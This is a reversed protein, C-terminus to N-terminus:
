EFISHYFFSIGIAEDNKVAKESEKCGRIAEFIVYSWQKHQPLAAM